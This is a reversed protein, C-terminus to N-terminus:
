IVEKGGKAIKMVEIVDFHSPNIRRIKRGTEERFADLTGAPLITVQLPDMGLFHKLNKFDKDVYRFYTSLHDKILERNGVQNGQYGIEVYMHLYARKSADYEKVAFWDQLELRSLRLAESITGESIRTFGAIDIFRPERDTFIFHPLAVGDEESSMSVCRFVDGTRYRAFAGGKFNSVVLEYDLGPKIEDLLYTRPKYSPDLINKELETMPIFEYLGVDPFFVLGSKRWTETAVCAPETGAFIELPKIGWYHEIKKKLAHSDTGACVLGKLNWIDKPLIPTGDQKSKAWAKIMRYNMKSSNKLLSSKGNSKKQEGEGVFADGIKVVISSLGFFLDIGKQMGLRFGEKNRQEFGMSEAEEISPLFNVPLEAQVLHPVMGTLYPLPAMGYLFNEDGRLTFSGKKDSTALLLITISSNRHCDVMRETYPAVKIPNRGGEWTTEIWLMPKAPLKQEDRSLLIDAYDDYQTLPVLDRFEQVTKPKKGKMIHIGLECNGYLELQELMLRNQIEMFEPLTLNLFGCYEQWVQDYQKKKLKQELTM